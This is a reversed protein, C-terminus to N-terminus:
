FTANTLANKLRCVLKIKSSGEALKSGSASYLNNLNIASFACPMVVSKVDCLSEFVRNALRIKTISYPETISFPM